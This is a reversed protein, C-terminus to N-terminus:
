WRNLVKRISDLQEDKVRIEKRLSNAEAELTAFRAELPRLRELEAKMEDVMKILDEKKLAKPKPEDAKKLKKKSVMASADAATTSAGGVAGGLRTAWLSKKNYPAMWGPPKEHTAMYDVALVFDPLAFTSRSTLLVDDMCDECYIEEAVLQKETPWFDWYEQFQKPYFEIKKAGFMVEVDGYGSYKGELVVTRGDKTLVNIRVPAGFYERGEWEEGEEDRSVGEGCNCCDFNFCGM